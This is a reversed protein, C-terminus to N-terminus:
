NPNVGRAWSTESKGPYRETWKRAGYRMCEELSMSFTTLTMWRRLTEVQDNDDDDKMKQSKWIVAGGADATEVIGRTSVTQVGYRACQVTLGRTTPKM